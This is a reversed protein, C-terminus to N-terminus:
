VVYLYYGWYIFNFVLFSIPFVIRSKEDIDASSLLTSVAPTKDPKESESDKDLRASMRLYTEIPCCPKQRDM